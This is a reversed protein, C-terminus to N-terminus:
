RNCHFIKKLKFANWSKKIDFLQSFTFLGELWGLIREKEPSSSDFIEESMEFAKFDIM